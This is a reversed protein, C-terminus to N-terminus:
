LGKGYYEWCFSHIIRLVEMSSLLHTPTPVSDTILPLVNPIIKKYEELDAEVDYEWDEFRKSGDVALKRLKDAFAEFNRLEGARIGNRIAQVGSLPPDHCRTVGLYPNCLNTM